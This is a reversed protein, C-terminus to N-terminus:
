EAEVEQLEISYDEFKVGKAEVEIKLFEVNEVQFYGLFEGPGPFMKACNNYYDNHWVGYTKSIVQNM